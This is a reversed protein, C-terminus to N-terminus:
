AQRARDRAEIEFPIHHYAQSHNRYRILNKFYDKLYILYFLPVSVRTMQAQHVLEHRLLTESINEKAHKFWIQRGV